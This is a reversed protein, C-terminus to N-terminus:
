RTGGTGVEMARAEHAARRRERARAAASLALLEDAATLHGQGVYRFDTIREAADALARQTVDTSRALIQEHVHQERAQRLATFTTSYRRSKTLCHGRYGLQHACAALRRNGADRRPATATAIVKVEALAIRDGSDLELEAPEGAPEWRVIRGVRDSHDHLRVRVREGQSMAQVARWALANPDRATQAGRPCRPTAPAAATRLKAVAQCTDGLTFAARLYRRVHERVPATDIQDRDIPHLPGGAQETSKTAYKALYGAVERREQHDLQRVDLESGWGMRGGGLEDPVPAMVEAVTDRVVQELLESTFRHDPPRLQGARYDPMARDLRAIVHLHVLGRKQYEAVKVYAVRALERLRTQTMGLHRALTRPLYISGTRRWLEGLVNNWIVAGTHDFCDLCLPQGLYPDGEDHVGRV